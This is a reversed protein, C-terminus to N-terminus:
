SDVDMKHLIKDIKRMRRINRITSYVGVAFIGGIIIASLVPISM